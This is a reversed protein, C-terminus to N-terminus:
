VVSFIEMLLVEFRSFLDRSVTLGTWGRLCFFFSAGGFEFDFSCFWTVLGIGASDLEVATWLRDRWKGEGLRREKRNWM